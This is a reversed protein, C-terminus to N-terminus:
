HVSPFVASHNTPFYGMAQLNMSPVYLFVRKGILGLRRTVHNILASPIQGFAMQRLKSKPRDFWISVARGDWGFCATKNRM